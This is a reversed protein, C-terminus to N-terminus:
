GLEPPPSDIPLPRQTFEYSNVAFVLDYKLVLQISPEASVPSTYDKFFKAFIDMAHKAGAALNNSANAYENITQHIRKQEPDKVCVMFLTDNEIKQKVLQYFEGRYEVEGNAREYKPNHIAYPLPVPLTLIVADSSAYSGADLRNLLDKKANSRLAWYVFNYGGV